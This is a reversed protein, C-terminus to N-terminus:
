GEMLEEPTCMIPATCGRSRCVAEIKIRMAANAIHRCDWTLLYEVKHVTAISIHLADVAAKRPLPGEVM